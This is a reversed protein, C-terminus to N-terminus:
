SWMVPNGTEVSAKCLMRLPGVIYAFDTTPQPRTAVRLREPPEGARAGVPPMAVRVRQRGATFEVEDGPLVRQSFRAARFLTVPPETGPDRVFFGDPDVGAHYGPGMMSVGDYAAVYTMVAAGTAEDVLVTEDGARARTDFLDLEALVLAAQESPVSGDNTNPLVDHLTPFNARGAARLAQQFLRLGAWNAVRESVQEM